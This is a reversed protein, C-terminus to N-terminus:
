YRIQNRPSSKIKFVENKPNLAGFTWSLFGLVSLLVISCGVVVAVARDPVWNFTSLSLTTIGGVFSIVLSFLAISQPSILSLACALAVTAMLLLQDSYKLHGLNESFVEHMFVITGSAILAICMLVIRTYVSPRDLRSYHGLLFFGILSCILPSLYGIIIATAGTPTTDEPGWKIPMEYESLDSRLDVIAQSLAQYKPRLNISSPSVFNTSLLCEDSLRIFMRGVISPGINPLKAEEVIKWSVPDLPFVVMSIDRGEAKVSQVYPSYQHDIDNLYSTLSKGDTPTATSLTLNAVIRPDDTSQLFVSAETAGPLASFSASLVKSKQVVNNIDLDCQAALAHSTTLILFCFGAIILRLM